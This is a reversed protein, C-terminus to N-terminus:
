YFMLGSSAGPTIEVLDECTFVLGPADEHDFLDYFDSDMVMYGGDFRDIVIGSVMSPLHEARWPRCFEVGTARFTRPSTGAGRCSFVLTSDDADDWHWIYHIRYDRLIMKTTM